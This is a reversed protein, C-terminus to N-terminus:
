PSTPTLQLVQWHRRAPVPPLDTANTILYGADAAAVEAAYPSAFLPTLDRPAYPQGTQLRLERQWNHVLVKDTVLKFVTYPRKQLTALVNPVQSWVVRMPFSTDVAVFIRRPHRTLYLHYAGSCGAYLAVFLALWLIFQKM